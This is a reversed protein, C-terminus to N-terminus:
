LPNNQEYRRRETPDARRASIIRILETGDDEDQVTHAVLLLLHGDIRGLTKWRLEGNEYRDQEVIAFPDIFVRAATEFHVDHKRVNSRAKTEDWEFRINM